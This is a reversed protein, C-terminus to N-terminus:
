SNVQGLALMQMTPLDLLIGLFPPGDPATERLREVAPRVEVKPKKM